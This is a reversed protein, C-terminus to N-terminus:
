DQCGQRHRIYGRYPILGWGFHSTDVIRKRTDTGLRKDQTMGLDSLLTLKKM